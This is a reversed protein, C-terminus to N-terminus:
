PAEQRAEQPVNPDVYRDHQRRMYDLIAPDRDRAPVPDPDWHGHADTGRVLHATRRGLTSQVHTPIYFLTLGIRPGNTRNPLSGHILREHHLSFQGAELALDAASTEDLGRIEQGRALLNKEDYTEVHSQSPGRHSGPIVRVCGNTPNSDTLAVWAAVLDHPALGFYASDQHWSVYSGDSPGKIWFKSAFALVNPGILDEVADLIAPHGALAFSWKFFLYGKFHFQGASMGEEREFRDLEGCMWAAEDAPLCPLPCLFGQTEYFAIQEQTLVKPM